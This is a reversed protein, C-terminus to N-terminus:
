GGTAPPRPKRARRSRALQKRAREFLREKPRLSVSWPAANKLMRAAGSRDGNQALQLAAAACASVFARQQYQLEQRHREALRRLTDVSGRQEGAGAQVVSVAHLTQALHWDHVGKPLESELARTLTHLASLARSPQEDAMALARKIKVAWQAHTM